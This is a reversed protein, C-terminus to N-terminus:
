KRGGSILDKYLEIYSNYRAKSIEGNEVAEKVGCDPEKYHNCSNFRCDNYEKFEIFYDKLNYKDIGELNLSSFGATDVVWGGFSLTFIEAHRTTHKGRKLKKSIEGTKLNLGEEIINVMTSKGVGSPGAFVSIKDKLIGKLDDLSEPVMMSTLVVKYGAKEYLEKIRLSEEQDLDTKNICIIAEVNNLEAQILFKDLLRFNPNPKEVAFVIIAQEVNAVPPRIIENSRQFIEEVYGVTSDEETIRIRCRDGVIPKIDQKRFLGRARCEIIESGTDVYYFGGLCKLIIGKQFKNEL